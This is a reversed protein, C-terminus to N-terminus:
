RTPDDGRSLDDWSDIADHPRSGGAASAASTAYRRGAGSGWRRATVLTLVGAALPLVQVVATIWPWPTSAISRVLAAVGELGAIGTTGTVTSAVASVPPAVAVATTLWALIGGLVVGLAGLVYRVATGVISMAGGLALLALSLPALVPLAASGSVELQEASGDSLAVTLWTQTSSIVGVAGALLFAVVVALRARRIM